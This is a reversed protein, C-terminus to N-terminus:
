RRPEVACPAGQLAAPSVPVTYMKPGLRSLRAPAALSFTYQGRKLVDWLVRGFRRGYPQTPALATNM